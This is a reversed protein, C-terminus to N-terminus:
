GFYMPLWFSSLRCSGGARLFAFVDACDVGAVVCVGVAVVCVGEFWVGIAIL